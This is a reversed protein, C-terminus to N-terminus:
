NQYQFLLILALKSRFLLIVYSWYSNLKQCNNLDLIHDSFTKECPKVWLLDNGFSVVRLTAHLCLWVYFASHFSFLITCITACSLPISVVKVPNYFLVCKHAQPPNM